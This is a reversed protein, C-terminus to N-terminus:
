TWITSMKVGLRNYSVEGASKVVFQNATTKRAIGNVRMENPINKM